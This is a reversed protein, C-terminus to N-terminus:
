RVRHPPPVIGEAILEDLRRREGTLYSWGEGVEFARAAIVARVDDDTHTEPDLGLRRFRRDRDARGEARWRARAQEITEPPRYRIRRGEATAEDHERAAAFRDDYHAATQDSGSEGKRPRGRGRRVPRGSRSDDALEFGPLAVQGEPPRRSM